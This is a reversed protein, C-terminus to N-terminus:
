GSRKLNNIIIQIANDHNEIVEKSNKKTFTETKFTFLSIEEAIKEAVGEALVKEHKLDIFQFKVSSSGCNIVLVKM